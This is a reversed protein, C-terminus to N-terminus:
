ALERRRRRTRSAARRFVAVPDNTSVRQATLKALLEDKPSSRDIADPTQNEPLTGAM